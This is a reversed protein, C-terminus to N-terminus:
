GKLNYFQNTTKKKKEPHSANTDLSRKYIKEFLNLEYKVQVNQFNQYIM